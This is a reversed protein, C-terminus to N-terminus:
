KKIEMLPVYVIGLLKLARSSIVKLCIIFRLLDLIYESISLM